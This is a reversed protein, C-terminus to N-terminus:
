RGCQSCREGCQADAANCTRVTDGQSGRFRHCIGSSGVFCVMTDDSHMLDRCECCGVKVAEVRVMLIPDALGRGVVGQFAAMDAQLPEPAFEALKSLISM